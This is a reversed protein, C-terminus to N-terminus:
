VHQRKERIKKKDSKALTGIMAEIMDPTVAMPKHEDCRGSIWVMRIMDHFSCPLSRFKECEENSLM